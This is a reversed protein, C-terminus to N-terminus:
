CAIYFSRIATGGAIMCVDGYQQGVQSASTCKNQNHCTVRQSSSIGSVEVAYWDLAPDVCINCGLNQYDLAAGGDCSRTTYWKTEAAQAVAAALAVVFSVSSILKLHMKSAQIRDITSHSRTHLFRINGPCM